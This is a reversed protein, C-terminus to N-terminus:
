LGLSGKISGLLGKDAGKTGESAGAPLWDGDALQREELSKDEYLDNLPGVPHSPAILHGAHDLGLPLDHIPAFAVTIQVKKPARNKAESETGYLSGDYNLTMNTFVGALGRGASSEFSRVIANRGPSFFESDPLSRVEEIAKVEKKVLDRFAGDEKPGVIGLGGELEWVRAITLYCDVSSEFGSDFIREYRRIGLVKKAQNEDSFKLTVKYYLEGKASKGPAGDKVKYKVPGLTTAKVFPSDYNPGSPIPLMRMVKSTASDTDFFLYTGTRARYTVKTNVDGKADRFAKTLRTTVRGWAAAVVKSSNRNNWYDETGPDRDSGAELQIHDPAGFLRKLGQVSYNSHFLEGLRLRVVPSATPVQSFPQVFSRGDPTFRQKGLSRQPYCMAVLKNIV